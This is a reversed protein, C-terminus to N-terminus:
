EAAIIQHEDIIVKIEAQCSGCNSGAGTTEGISAVNRCGNQAALAIENRGVSMCSCVIAGKDPMNAAPRGAVMRWRAALDPFPNKLQEIAWSRSLEVPESALFIASDLQNEEFSAIRTLGAQQDSYTLCPSSKSISLVDRALQSADQITDSTAFEARWGGEVKALAWYSLNELRPKRRTVLFGFQNAAFKKLSVRGSKLAPQGSHPDLDPAVLKNVRADAVYRDTFHMPVFIQDRHVRDTILARVIISGQDNSISVLDADVLGLAQANIPHIEVFPEAIHASLRPSKGTRTMTHWHDRIRGTNLIFPADANPATRKAHRTPVFNARGNATFFGGNAFFRKEGIPAIGLNSLPWQFPLLDDYAEDSVDALAGIDLDRTGNNEFATQAAYEKFIAAANKYSFADDFGMRKAVEAMQWWDAKANAPAPLFARQRSIRRESNTVTGDKEGWGLSPLLVNAYRTTDTNRVVDSVIVTPCNALADAVVDADPLSDVPNTAMIWIAKIKGSAVADFMEVAKLGAQSAITPANWFRKVLDRHEPNEIAMHAALMNALGGVERGGMANPQGTISFPGMGPKGIRGTALHCNIIANVKDTGSRSQNVGQSFVTAVKENSIWLDYFASLDRMTLGTQSAIDELSSKAAQVRAQEYGNTFQAVYDGAVAGNAAIEALLGNFLAVDSDPAIALHIDAIDATMTRRPDILVIKMEPRAQKAAVIRQYIVPHCWALNSGTLVLLDAQELDQYTGPVTDSGFARRHGAVSSAMCLRSNTDINASGIFGKMLKNAVYYDETLIQGSVYFAVSDPGHECITKSLRNAVFNLASDWDTVSGDIEPELLRDDLSLTEGLASGKSCLRGFNAPHTEDGKIQISGDTCPTAIIGCGVGCYPCVTKTGCDM